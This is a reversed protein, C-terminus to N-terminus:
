CKLIGPLKLSLPFALQMDKVCPATEHAVSPFTFPCLCSLAALRVGEELFRCRHIKFYLFRHFTSTDVRLKFPQQIKKLEDRPGPLLDQGEDSGLLTLSTGTGKGLLAVRRPVPQDM